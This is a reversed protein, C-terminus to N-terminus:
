VSPVQYKSIESFADVIHFKALNIAQRYKHIKKSWIKTFISEFKFIKDGKGKFLDNLIVTATFLAWDLM